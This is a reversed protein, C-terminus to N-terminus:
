DAIGVVKEERRESRPHIKGGSQVYFLVFHHFVFILHCFFKLDIM